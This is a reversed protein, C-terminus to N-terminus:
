PRRGRGPRRALGPAKERGHGVGPRDPPGRRKPAHGRHDTLTEVWDVIAPVAENDAASLVDVHSYGELIVVTRDEPPTAVSGLYSAFSAERTALGNSGGIGLIPASVNHNQTVNLLEPAGLASSDRGFSLDLGPRGSVFYWESANATEYLSAILVNVDTVERERGWTGPGDEPGNDRIACGVGGSGTRPSPDNPPCTPLTPDDFNKWTRLRRQSPEPDAVYSFAFLNIEVNGANDSFGMSASFAANFTFDDDLFFGVLSRNTMPVGLLLSIPPAGFISTKQLISPDTPVFTGAVGTMEGAAGLDVADVLGFLDETFNPEGGASALDEVTALYEALDPANPSPPGTGGGELLLLGDVIAHGALVGPGPDFDYAAFVGTWTTGMSHGGFVVLGKPGVLARAEDVLAKWDRVYTDVGWYAAFRLDDQALRLFSSLGGSRDPLEFRPEPSGDGDLDADFYFRTGEEVAARVGALDGRAHAAEADARSHLAGRRDELQSSRRDVAWVEALGDYFRVLDRAIPDFTGAGGLFGPILIFVIRPKPGRGKGRGKGESHGPRTMRTRITSVRNLDAGEGVIASPTATLELEEPEGSGPTHPEQVGPTLVLVQEVDRPCGRMGLTLAVATVLALGTSIRM